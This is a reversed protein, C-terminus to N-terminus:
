ADVIRLALTVRVPVLGFMLWLIVQSILMFLSASSDDGKGSYKQMLFQLFNLSGCEIFKKCASASSSSLLLIVACCTFSINCCKCYAFSVWMASCLWLRRYFIYGHCKIPHQLFCFFIEWCSADLVSICYHVHNAFTSCHQRFKSFVTSTSWDLPLCRSVVCHSICKQWFHCLDCPMRVFPSCANWYRHFFMWLVTFNDCHVRWVMNFPWVKALSEIFCRLFKPHAHSFSFASSFFSHQRNAADIGFLGMLWHM